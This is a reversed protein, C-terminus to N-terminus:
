LAGCTHINFSAAIYVLMNICTRGKSVALSPVQGPQPLRRARHRRPRAPQWCVLAPLRLAHARLPLGDVPRVWVGLAGDGGAQLRWVSGQRMMLSSLM